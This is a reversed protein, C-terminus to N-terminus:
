EDKNDKHKQQKEKLKEKAEAKGGAKEIIQDKHDQIQERKTPDDAKQDQHHEQLQEKAAEKSGAHDIIEEKHNQVRERKTKNEVARQHAMKKKVQGNGAQQLAVKKKEDGKTEDGTATQAFINGAAVATIMLLTLIMKKM